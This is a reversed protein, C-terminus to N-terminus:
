KESILLKINSKLEEQIKDLISNERSWIKAFEEEKLKPISLSKLEEFKREGIFKTYNRWFSFLDKQYEKYVKEAIETFISLYEIDKVLKRLNKGEQIYYQEDFKNANQAEWFCKNLYDKYENIKLFLAKINDLKVEVVKRNHEVIFHQKMLKTSTFYTLLGGIVTGILASIVEM